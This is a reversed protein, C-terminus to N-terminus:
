RRQLVVHGLEKLAHHSLDAETPIAVLDGLASVGDVLAFLTEGLLSPAEQISQHGPVVLAHRHLHPGLATVVQGDESYADGDPTQGKVKFVFIRESESMKSSPTLQTESMAILAFLSRRLSLDTYGASKVTKHNLTM